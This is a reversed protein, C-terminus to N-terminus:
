RRRNSQGDGSNSNRDNSKNDNTAPQRRENSKSDNTNTDSSSNPTSRRDKNTDVGRQSQNNQKTNRDLENVHRNELARTDRNRQERYANREDDHQKRVDDRQADERKQKDILDYYAKDYHKDYRSRERNYKSNSEGRTGRDRPEGIARDSSFSPRYVNVQRRSTSIRVQNSRDVDIMDYREVKRRRDREWDNVNICHNYFHNDRFEYRTIDHSRRIYTINRAPNEIFFSVRPSDFHDNDVFCWNSWHIDVAIDFNRGRFGGNSWVAQPPLAAWGVYNGDNRWAVWAPAWVSGPVWLWGMYDDFTWRGYHYVAWAWNTDAQYTWGYSTYVWYGDSYPRWGPEIERPQWVWGFPAVNEWHGYPSLQDYFYDITVGAAQAPKETFFSFMMVMLGLFVTRRLM